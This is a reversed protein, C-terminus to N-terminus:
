LDRIVQKMRATVEYLQQQISEIFVLYCSELRDNSATKWLADLDGDIQSLEQCCRELQQKVPNHLPLNTM